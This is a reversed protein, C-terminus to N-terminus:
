HATDIPSPEAAAPDVYPDLPLGTHPDVPVPAAGAAAPDVAFGGPETVGTYAGAAPAAPGVVPGGAMAIVGSAYPMAGNTQLCAWPDGTTDKEPTISVVWLKRTRLQSVAGGGRLEEICEGVEEARARTEYVAGGALRALAEMRRACAPDELSEPRIGVRELRTAGVTRLCERAFRAAGEQALLIPMPGGVDVCVVNALPAGTGWRVHMHDRPDLDRVGLEAVRLEEERGVVASWTGLSTTTRSHCTGSRLEVKAHTAGPVSARLRVALRDSPDALLQVDGGLGVPAHGPSGNAFGNADYDVVAGGLRVRDDDTLRSMLEFSSMGIVGQGGFGYDDPEFRELLPPTALGLLLAVFAIGAMWRGRWQSGELLLAAFYLVLATLFGAVVAVAVTDDFTDVESGRQDLAVMAGAVLLGLQIPLLASRLRAFRLSAGAAATLLVMAVTCAGVVTTFIFSDEDAIDTWLVFVLFWGGALAVVTALGVLVWGVRELSARRVFDFATNM